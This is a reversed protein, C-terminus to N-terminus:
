DIKNREERKTSYGRHREISWKIMDIRSKNFLNPDFTPLKVDEYKKM